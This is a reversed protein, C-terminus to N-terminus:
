EVTIRATILSILHRYKALIGEHDTVSQILCDETKTVMNQIALPLAVVNKGVKDTIGVITASITKLCLVNIQCHLAIDYHVKASITSINKIINEVDNFVAQAPGFCGYIILSADGPLSEIAHEINDWEDRAVKALEILSETLNAVSNDFIKVVSDLKTIM